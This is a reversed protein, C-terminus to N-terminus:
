ATRAELQEIRGLLAKVANILAFTLPTMDLTRLDSVPNGDIFAAMKGVIGPFVGEAEQAVLGVFTKGRTAPQAGMSLGRSELAENGRYVYRVPRLAVLEKLGIDYDGQVTKIREDSLAQWAGGGNQFGLGNQLLFNHIGGAQMGIDGNLTLTGIAANGMSISGSASGPNLAITGSGAANISIGGNGGANIGIAGTYSMSFNASSGVNNLFVTSSTQDWYWQSIAVSSSNMLQITTNGTSAQRAVLTDIVVLNGNLVGGTLPLYNALASAAARSTDVPHVHNGASWAVSNGANAAGNMLPLATSAVPIAVVTTVDLATLTVAGNRGNFSAVGSIAAIAAQIFACTALQTTNTGPAATPATPVGYLAPSGLPAGGAASIDNSTLTVVGARGNFSIVGADIATLTNAVFATTAILTSNDGIAPTPATPLGIFAPSNLPAYGPLSAVAATVFACTALQTTNTGPGATLATPSGLFAPSQIPAGGADIVDTTNLIIAGTRTNFSAVGATAAQVANMVFATTALQGTANGPAATPATPVGTFAPANIPAFQASVGAALQNVVAVVFATTAISTSNDTPLTTQPTPATPNGTFAPSDLPAFGYAAATATTLIPYGGVTIAGNPVAINGNAILNCVTALNSVELNAATLTQAVNLYGFTCGGGVTLNTQVVASALNATGGVQMDGAISATGLQASVFAATAGGVTGVATLNGASDLWMLQTQGAEAGAAQAPGADWVFVGSAAFGFSASPGSTTVRFDDTTLSFYCNWNHTAGLAVVLNDSFIQGGFADAPAPGTGVMLPGAEALATAVLAAASASYYPGGLGDQLVLSFTSPVAGLPPYGAIQRVNLILDDSPM